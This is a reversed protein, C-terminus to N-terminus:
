PSEELLLLRFDLISTRVEFNAQMSTRVEIHIMSHGGSSHTLGRLPVRFGFGHPFTAERSSNAVPTKLKRHLDSPVPLLGWSHFKTM